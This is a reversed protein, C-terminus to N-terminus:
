LGREWRDRLMRTTTGPWWHMRGDIQTPTMGNRMLRDVLADKPDYAKATSTKYHRGVKRGKDFAVRRMRVLEEQAVHVGLRRARAGVATPTRGPLVEAWGVWMTGHRPYFTRVANDEEKSWEKSTM